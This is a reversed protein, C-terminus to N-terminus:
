GATEVVAVLDAVHAASGQGAVGRRDVLPGVVRCSHWVEPHFRNFTESKNGGEQWFAPLPRPDLKAVSPEVETDAAASVHHEYISCNLRHAFNVQNRGSTDPPPFISSCSATTADPPGTSAPLTQCFSSEILSSSGVAARTASGPM